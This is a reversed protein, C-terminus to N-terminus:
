GIPVGPEYKSERLILMTKVHEVHPEATLQKIVFDQM